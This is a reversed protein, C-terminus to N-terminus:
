EKDKGSSEADSAEEVARAANAAKRSRLDSPRYFFEHTYIVGTTPVLKGESNRPRYIMRRLSRSVIKSFDLLEKPETELNVLNAIRGTPLVVYSFTMSGIAFNEPPPRGDEKQESNFYKPPAVKQLQNVQELHDWRMRMREPVNEGSLMTWIESYIKEARNPRGSLIYYDGLSLLTNEVLMWDSDPNKDAIRNARRLYTEGSSSSVDTQYDYQSPSVFLYSKGLNTLPLILELSQKGKHREIVNIIRRWSARENAYLQLRHQWGAKNTLAPIIELSLPDIKRAELAYINEQIGIADKIDGTSIHLEAMSELTLVQKRNHPGENVHSVHVARKFSQKALDPRGTAAQTAALGQLPNILAASLRDDIREVIGIAAAFNLMASEFDRNHHQAIGLNTIAKASDHSDLGNLKISLEVVQKALTDAELYAKNELSERYLEFLRILEDKDGAVPPPPGALEVESEDDEKLSYMRTEEDFVLDEFVEEAVDDPVEPGDLLIYDLEEEDESQAASGTWCFLMAVLYFLNKSYQSSKM